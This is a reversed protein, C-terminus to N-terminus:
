DPRFTKVYTAAGAVHPCSMSTGSLINYKVSRKDTKDQSPPALPSYAALIEIGPASIDPKMIERIQMNPGVSSFEAIILATNNIFDTSSLIEACPTTTSNAYSLAVDYAEPDIGLAPYSVVQAEYEYSISISGFAGSALGASYGFSTRCLVIKGKIRKPDLCFCFETDKDSPCKPSSAFKVHILLIKTGNSAFGNISKGSLMLGNGLLVNDIIRRDMTTADAIADDFAVLIVDARCERKSCMSYAAIRASPIGGRAVGEAIGYFSEGVVKNGAAISATHTGHGVIDRAKWKKPILGFGHDNFSESEPWIETDIVGIIVDSEGIKNRHSYTDIIQVGHLGLVKYNTTETNMHNTADNDNTTQQIMSLHHSTPSYNHKPLSGMYVIHLNKNADNASSVDAIADDFAVLIADARCERESCVSYAAIRASPVGGRSVGEAIGYFSAGVVENGKWKKLILGFGHYNFSESEPWIKTDIVGIIVDSEGTKNKHISEKFGMFGWSRTTQLKLTRSSFVSVVGEM